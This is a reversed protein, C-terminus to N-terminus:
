LINTINNIINKPQYMENDWFEDTLRAINEECHEIEKSYLYFIDIQDQVSFCKGKGAYFAVDMEKIVICATACLVAKSYIDGDFIMKLFYRYVYYVMLHEFVYSDNKYMTDFENHLAEFSEEDSTQVWEVTDSLMKIWRSNINELGTIFSLLNSVYEKTDSMEYKEVSSLCKSIYEDSSFKGAITEINEYEENDVANQLQAAFMLYLTMRESIKLRRNQLIGFLIDRADSLMLFLPDKTYDTGIVEEDKNWEGFRIPKDSSLVLKSVEPCALSLGMERLSGFEEGIRPYNDCLSCLSKDGLKIVMECLNDKNLFACRGDENLAFFHGDERTVINKRINEGWEGEMKMFREYSVDDIEIMWGICCTDPCKSGTCSFMDYYHPIRVKM